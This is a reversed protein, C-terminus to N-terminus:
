IQEQNKDKSQNLTQSTDMKRVGLKWELPWKNFAKVVNWWPNITLRRHPELLQHLVWMAERKNSGSGAESGGPSTQGILTGDAGVGFLVEGNANKQFDTIYKLDQMKNDLPTIKIDERIDKANISDYEYFSILSKGYNDIDRLFKNMMELTESIHAEREKNSLTGWGKYKKEWYGYNIQVHFKLVMQNKILMKVANPIDNGISLWGDLLGHWYCENYYARGRTNYLVPLYFSTAASSKLKERLDEVANNPDLAPITAIEKEDPAPWNYSLFLKEIKGSTANRKSVRCIAPDRFNVKAIISKDISPILEPYYNFHVWHGDVLTFYEEDLNSNSFFEFLKPDEVIQYDYSTGDVSIKETYVVLGKGLHADRKLQIAQELAGNKAIATIITNPYDNNDGWNSWENSQMATDRPPTVKKEKVTGAASQSFGNLQFLAIPNGESIVITPNVM